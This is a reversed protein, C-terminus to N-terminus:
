VQQNINIFQVKEGRKLTGARIAWQCFITIDSFNASM